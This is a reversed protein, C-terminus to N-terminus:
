WYPYSIKKEVQQIFAIVKPIQIGYNMDTIESLNVSFNIGLLSFTKNLGLGAEM